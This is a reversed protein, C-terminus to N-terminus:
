FNGDACQLCVLGISRWFDVVQKRDDICFEIEFHPFIDNIYIDSKIEFDKRHDDKKRMLLRDFPIGSRELWTQTGAFFEDSRGSVILINYGQLQMAIMLHVCWHNPQDKYHNRNFSDWDKKGDKTLIYHQRHDNNAITGDLDVIIAKQKM